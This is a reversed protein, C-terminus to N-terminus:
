LIISDSRDPQCQNRSNSTITADQQGTNIAAPAAQSKIRLLFSVAIFFAFGMEQVRLRQSSVCM